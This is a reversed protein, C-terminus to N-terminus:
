GGTDQGIFARFDQRADVVMLIHVTEENVLRYVVRYNGAIIERRELSELEPVMRGSAPFDSLRAVTDLLEGTLREAVQESAVDSWYEHISALNELARRSWYVTAL